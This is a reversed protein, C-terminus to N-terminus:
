IRDIGGRIDTSGESGTYGVVVRHTPPTVSLAGPGAGLRM